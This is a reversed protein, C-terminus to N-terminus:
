LIIGSAFSNGDFITKQEDYFKELTELRRSQNQIKVLCYAVEGGNIFDTESDSLWRGRRQWLETRERILEQSREKADQLRENKERITERFIALFEAGSSFFLGSVKSGRGIISSRMVNRMTMIRSRLEHPLSTWVETNDDGNTDSSITETDM